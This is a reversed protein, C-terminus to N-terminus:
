VSAFLMFLNLYFQKMIWHFSASSIAVSYPIFINENRLESKWLQGSFHSLPKKQLQTYKKLFKIAMLIVPTQGQGRKFKPLHTLALYFLITM